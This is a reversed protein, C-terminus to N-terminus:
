NGQSGAAAHIAALFEKTFGRGTKIIGASRASSVAGGPVGSVGKNPPNVTYTDQGIKLKAAAGMSPLHKSAHVDAVPVNVIEEGSGRRLTLHGDAITVTGAREIRKVGKGITVTAEYQPPTQAEM